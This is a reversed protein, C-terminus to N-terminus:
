RALIHAALQHQQHFVVRFHAFHRAQQQGVQAVRHQFCFVGQFGGVHDFVNRVDGNQQGIDDHGAAHVAGRQRAKGSAKPRRHANHQDAAVGLPQFVVVRFDM